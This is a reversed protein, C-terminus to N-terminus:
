GILRNFLNSWFSKKTDDTLDAALIRDITAQDFLSGGEGIMQGDLGQGLVDPNEHCFKCEKGTASTTHAYWEGYGHHTENGITADMKLFTAVKGDKNVGLLFEESSTTMGKRTDMHCGNCTLMWGTHCATCDLKDDHVTHSRSETVDKHCGECEVNTAELQTAYDIGTGHIESAAHCDDCELGREYHVDANPGKSKHMPMDGVYTSTQKKKHCPECTDITVEYLHSEYMNQGPHCNTCTVAHCRDCKWKEYYEDMDIDFHGAAGREYEDYMGSGTHHLSTNFNKAIDPHCNECGGFGDDAACSYCSFALAVLVFIATAYINKNQM